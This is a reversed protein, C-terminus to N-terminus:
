GDCTMEVIEVCVHSGAPFEMRQKKPVEIHARDDAGVWVDAYFQASM